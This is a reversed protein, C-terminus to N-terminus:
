GVILDQQAGSGIGELDAGGDGNDGDDPPRPPIFVLHNTIM